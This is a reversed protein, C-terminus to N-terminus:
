PGTSSGEELMTLPVDLSALPIMNEKESVEHQKSQIKVSTPEAPLEQQQEQDFGDEYSEEM